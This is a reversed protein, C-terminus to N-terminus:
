NIQVPFADRREGYGSAAVGSVNFYSVYAQRTDTHSTDSWGDGNIGALELTGYYTGVNGSRVYTYHFLSLTSPM